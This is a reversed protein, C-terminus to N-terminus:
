KQKQHRYLHTSRWPRWSPLGRELATAIAGALLCTASLQGSQKRKLLLGSLLFNFLHLREGDSLFTFSSRVKRPWIERTRDLIRPQLPHPPHTNPSKSMLSPWKRSKLVIKRLSCASCAIPDWKIHMPVKYCLGNRLVLQKKWFNWDESIAVLPTRPEVGPSQQSKWKGRNEGWLM